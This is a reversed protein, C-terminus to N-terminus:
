DQTLLAIMNVLVVKAAPSTLDVKHGAIALLQDKNFHLRAAAAAPARGLLGQCALLTALENLHGRVVKLQVLGVLTGPANIHHSDLEATRTSQLSHTDM